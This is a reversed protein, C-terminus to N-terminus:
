FQGRIGLVGMSHDEQFGALTRDDGNFYHYGAYVAFPEWAVYSIEPNLYLNKVNLGGFFRLGATWRGQGFTTEIEGNAGYYETLQLISQDTQLAQAVLQLNIRTDAGGPFFEIGGVWDLSPVYTTATTPLTVPINDTYGLEMRWTIGNSELEMDAGAFNNFPHIATLTPALPIGGILYYPQSQRSRALTVGYDVAGGTKTLRVGGGGSGHEDESIVANQVLAAVAPSPAIGVIEGTTLNIPSWVSSADPLEAANFVPLWVADLKFDGLTQEWRAALEARRREPLEDLTFRTLDARSVRDALPIEDVRGWIITQAGLTLRTDGSRYRVYTDTFDASMDNFDAVGGNQMAGDVRAGARLEWDRNPQWLVYAKARLTSYTDAETADPLGGAELLLDDVGYKLTPQASRPKAKKAGPPPLDDAGELPVAAQATTTGAAAAPPKRTSTRPPPLDDASGAEAARPPPLDDAASAHAPLLAPLTALSLTLNLLLKKM